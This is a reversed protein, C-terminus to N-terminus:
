CNYINMLLFIFSISDEETWPFSLVGSSYDWNILLGGHRETGGGGGEEEGDDM